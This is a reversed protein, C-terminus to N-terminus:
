TSPNNHSLSSPNACKSIIHTNILPQPPLPSPNISNITTNYHYHYYFSPPPSSSSYNCYKCCCYNHYNNNNTTTNTSDPNNNQYYETADITTCCQHYFNIYTTTINNCASSYHTVYYFYCYYQMYNICIHYMCIDYLVHRMQVGSINIFSFFLMVILVMIVSKIVQAIRLRKFVSVFANINVNRVAM